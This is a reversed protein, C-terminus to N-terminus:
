FIKQTKSSPRSILFPYQIHQVKADLYEKVARLKLEISIMNKRVM